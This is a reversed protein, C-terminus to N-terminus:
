KIEIPTKSMLVRWVNETVESKCQLKIHLVAHEWHKQKSYKQLAVLNICIEEPIM